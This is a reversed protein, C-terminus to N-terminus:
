RKIVPQKTAMIQRQFVREKQQQQIGKNAMIQTMGYKVQILPKATVTAQRPQAPAQRRNNNAQGCCM